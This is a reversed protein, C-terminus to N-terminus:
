IRTHNYIYNSIKCETILETVEKSETVSSSLWWFRCHCNNYAAQIGKIVDDGTFNVINIDYDANPYIELMSYQILGQIRKVREINEYNCVFKEENMNGPQCRLLNHGALRDNVTASRILDSTAQRLTDIVNNIPDQSPSSLDVSNVYILHCPSNNDQIYKLIPAQMITLPSASAVGGDVYDEDLIKQAPVVGPISASASGALGILHINGDTFYPEMSQTIEHNILTTDMITTEINRNCFLRAKQRNKNYTGTWIEYKSITRPTFHKSLFDHVGNGKNYINGNFYGIIRSLLSISNWSEAFLDQSLERAIREIGAWKWDSAAAVYAAVNGGSSALTLDPVIHSGCLHQIIALQSVFGGGSIPLIFIYM